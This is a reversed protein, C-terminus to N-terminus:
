VGRHEISSTVADLHDSLRDALAPRVAWERVLRLYDHVAAADPAAGTRVARLLTNRPTHVSDVFEIVDVRYGLLRLITARFTDTLVDALRERLIGHRAVLGYPEPVSGARRLQDQLDHHCCPAALIVPARWRVARALADDTATDCAHLALAVHPPEDLQVGDITGEVFRIDSERGQEAALASNRQRAQAKVDVGVLRVDQGRVSTLWRYGAFSLYANGCGLDVVRLPADGAADEAAPLVPELARLFEEVQRYKSTKTPKISGHADSIGVARLFPDSPDIMRAKHRDHDRDPLRGKASSRHVQADGKKTARLQLTADVTEVHWNGYPQELLESVVAASAAPEVNRTFAQRDDYSVTQLHRGRRLDVWRLEVRRYTPHEGRRRGSAVARVLRDSDLIM